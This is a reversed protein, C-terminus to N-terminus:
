VKLARIVFAEMNLLGQIFSIIVLIRMSILAQASLQAAVFPCTFASGIPVHHWENRFLARLIINHTCMKYCAFM